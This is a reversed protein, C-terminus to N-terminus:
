HFSTRKDVMAQLNRRDSQEYREKEEFISSGYLKIICAAERLDVIAPFRCAGAEEKQRKDAYKRFVGRLAAGTGSTKGYMLDPTFCQSIELTIEKRFTVVEIRKYRIHEYFRRYRIKLTHGCLVAYFRSIFDGKREM